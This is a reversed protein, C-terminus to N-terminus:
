LRDKRRGDLDRHIQGARRVASEANHALVAREHIEYM